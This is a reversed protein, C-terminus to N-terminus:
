AVIVWRRRWKKTHTSEGQFTGKMFERLKTSFTFNWPISPGDQANNTLSYSHKFVRVMLKEKFIKMLKDFAFVITWKNPHLQALSLNSYCFHM